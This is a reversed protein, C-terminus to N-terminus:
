RSYFEDLKKLEFYGHAGWGKAGPPIDPRVHMYYRYATSELEQGASLAADRMKAMVLGLSAKFREQLRNWTLQPNHYNSFNGKHKKAGPPQKQIARIGRDVRGKPAACVNELKPVQQPQECATSVRTRHALVVVGLVCFKFVEQDEDENKTSPDGDKEEDKTYIGLSAGKGHATHTAVASGISLAEPLSLEPYLEMAVITAWLTLVPSRNVLIKGVRQMDGIPPQVILSTDDESGESKSIKRRKSPSFTAAKSAVRRKSPLLKQQVKPDLGSPVNTSTLDGLSFIKAEILLKITPVADKTEVGKAIVARLLAGVQAKSTAM